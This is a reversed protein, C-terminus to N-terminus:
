GCAAQKRLRAFVEEAPITNRNPDALRRRIEAAQEDTLKVQETTM